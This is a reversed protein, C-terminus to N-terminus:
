LESAGKMYSNGQKDLTSLASPVSQRGTVADFFSADISAQVENYSDSVPRPLTFPSEAAAISAKLGPHRNLFSAPIAAIGGRTEPDFGTREAWLAQQAPEFWWQVFTWAAEDQAHTHGKPLVFGLGQALNAAHGTTGAPEVFARVPFKGSVAALVKAYGASTGDIMAMKGAAFDERLTTGHHFQLENRAFLDHFYTFTRRGAPTAFDVARGVTNSGRLLTGGNSMFAPLIHASSDKWGLPIVGLPKVKAADAALEAWTTPATTVGARKLMSANYFVESVKLDAQLRYHQGHVEGNQWVVPLMNKASVVPSGSMFRNWSVLAGAKVLTGDYHSIEALVPANGAPIAALLKTSAKTVVISVKVGKHTANFKDVLATMAGGVPGGNHSEWLQVAVPAAAKPTSRSVRRATSASAGASTAVTCGAVGAVLAATRAAALVGVRHQPGGSRAGARAAADRREVADRQDPNRAM